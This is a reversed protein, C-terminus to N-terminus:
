QPTLTTLKIKTNKKKHIRRGGLDVRVLVSKGEVVTKWDALLAEALLRAAAILGEVPPHAPAELSYGQEQGGARAYVQRRALALFGEAAGEPRGEEVRQRWGEGTLVRAAKLAADLAKRARSDEGLLDELRRQLGRLRSGARRGGEAGLLWRRLERCELGSLHAAFASDAAEFLHHGEDFVYRAPLQGDDGGGMAAQIM